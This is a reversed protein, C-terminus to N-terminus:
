GSIENSWLIECRFFVFLQWIVGCLKSLFERVKPDLYFWMEDARYASQQPQSPLQPPPIFGPGRLM